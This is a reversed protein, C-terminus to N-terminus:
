PQVTNTPWPTATVVPLIPLTDASGNTASPSPIMPLTPVASATAAPSQPQTPLIVPLGQTAQPTIAALTPGFDGERNNLFNFGAVLGIFIATALVLTILVAAWFLRNSGAIREFLMRRPVEIAVLTINDHGGRQNALNVLSQNAGELALQRYATLIEADEVLDTLGDSCLVLRDGERLVLGQNAENGGDAANGPLRLRFDAAPPIPSGLYRRIVHQNPNGKVFEPKLLGLELAEQIWTHDTNLQQINNGRLLYIRSDGVTTTYLRNRIIWACACTAGMGQRERDDIAQASIKRSAQLVAQRLIEVPAKGNSAAVVGSIQEVAIDAAIEGARHGGIGDCLVALLVPARSLPSLRLASVAYRDENKKGTMGPHTLAAVSFSSRNTRIM